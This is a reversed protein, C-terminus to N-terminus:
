STDTAARISSKGIKWDVWCCPPISRIRKASLLAGTSRIPCRATPWCQPISQQERAYPQIANGQLDTIDGNLHLSNGDRSLLGHHRLVITNGSVTVDPGDLSWQGRGTMSISANSYKIPENFTLTVPGDITSKTSVVKPGEADTTSVSIRYPIPARLTGTDHSDTVFYYDQSHTPKFTIVRSTGVIPADSYSRDGWDALTLGFGAPASIDSTLTVKYTMGAKGALRFYEKDGWYDVQASGTVGDGATQAGLKDNRYDDALQTVGLTYGGSHSSQVFLYNRDDEVWSFPQSLSYHQYADSSNSYPM